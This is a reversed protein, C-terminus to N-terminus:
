QLESGDFGSPFGAAVFPKLVSSSTTEDDLRTELAEFNDVTKFPFVIEEPLETHVAAEVGCVGRAMLHRLLRNNAKLPDNM